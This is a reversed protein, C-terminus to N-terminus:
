NFKAKLNQLELTIKWSDIMKFCYFQDTFLFYENDSKREKFDEYDICIAKSL